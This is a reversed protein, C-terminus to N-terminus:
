RLKESSRSDFEGGLLQELDVYYQHYAGLTTALKERLAALSQEAILLESLPFKRAEYGERVAAIANESAPILTKQLAEIEAATAKLKEFNESVIAKVRRRVATLELEAQERRYAAEAIGSENRNIIPLPMALGAVAAYNGFEEHRRVGGTVILDPTAKAQELALASRRLAIEAAVRVVEPSGDLRTLLVPLAPIAPIRDLDGSVERFSKVDGNWFSALRQRLVQIDRHIEEVRLQAEALAAVARSREFPARQGAEVRAEQAASLRKVLTLQDNALAARRQAVLLAIFTRATEGYIELRRVDAERQAVDRAGRAVAQEHALKATLPLAQSLQLTTQTEPRFGIDEVYISAEPNILKGADIQRAAVAAVGAANAILDANQAQVLALAAGLTLLRTSPASPAATARPQTSALAADGFPRAPNSNNVVVAHPASAPTEVFDNFQTCGGLLFILAAALHRLRGTADTRGKLARGVRSLHLARSNASGMLSACGRRLGGRM